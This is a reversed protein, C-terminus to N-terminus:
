SVPHFGDVLPCVGQMFSVGPLFGSPVDGWFRLFLTKLLDISVFPISSEPHM